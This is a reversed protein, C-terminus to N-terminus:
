KSVGLRSLTAQDLRGTVNLNGNKQYERIAAQTEPGLRGDFNGKYFGKDHLRRQAATIAQGSPAVAVGRQDRVAYRDAERVSRDADGARRDDADRRSLHLDKRTERDLQGNVALNKDRQYRRIASRTQPGDVGDVDGKYYGENKLKHQADRLTSQSHGHAQALTAFGGLGGSIVAALAVTKCYKQIGIM